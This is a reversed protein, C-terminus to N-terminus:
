RLVPLMATRAPYFFGSVALQAATLVYLLWVHNPERVLLFGLVIVARVIDCLILVRKRNFYDAVVGAIPSVLFPALLRIVFLSGVAFGSETLMAVLSASAILNFWDGLLSIIQGIWLRRFDLNSRILRGYETM